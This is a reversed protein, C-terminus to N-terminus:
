YSNQVLTYLFYVELRILLRLEPDVQGSTVARDRAMAAVCPPLSFTFHPEMLVTCSLLEILIRSKLCAYARDVRRM